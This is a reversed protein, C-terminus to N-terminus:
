LRKHISNKEYFKINTISTKKYQNASSDIDSRMKGFFQKNLIEYDDDSSNKLKQSERRIENEYDKPKKDEEDDIYLDEMNADNRGLNKNIEIMRSYEDDDINPMDQVSEKEYRDQLKMLRAHEDEEENLDEINEVVVKKTQM